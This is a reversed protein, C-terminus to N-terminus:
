KCTPEVGDTDLICLAKNLADIEEERKEVREEYSMGTDICVPKLEELEQLAKDVLNMNSQMDKMKDKISTKTTKLDQDDLETKTTKGGIDSKSTRDFEVFEASEDNEQATVNKITREFDSVIVELLGLVANASQQQGKYAGSAAGTDDEDVPSAQLFVKAKAAQKYFVKLVLLAESVAALGEKADKLTQLNEEKSEARLKTADKLASNLEKLSKSLNSLEEELEDQKAELASLEASLRQVDAWRHNRNKEAKSLELDCFGKKTAEATAEQVLREILEQILKKVKVFPDASVKMALSILVTSGLRKGEDRLLDLVKGRSVEASLTQGRARELLNKVEKRTQLFSPVAKVASLTVPQKSKQIFARENAAEDAVKVKDNLVELAQTLASIEDARMSSRQDFAGARQECRETLDKLYEQDDKMLSEADVLNERAKAIDTALTNVDGKLTNISNKNETMQNETDRILDKEAKETKAWEEDVAKKEKNFDKLLDGMVDIIGQSHYKYEPDDPDVNTQLFASVAKMKPTKVLNLVEALELTKKLEAKMSLFSPKSKDMAQIAKELSSIAKSLDAATVEYEAREKALRVKTEELTTALEEQKKKREQIEDLKEERNATKEAIDASLSEISDQGETVSKSKKVTTDKCFCAFKDYTAAEKKGEAVCENKMDDLLQIVKEVPSVDVSLASGALTVVSVRKVLMTAVSCHRCTGGQTASLAQAL